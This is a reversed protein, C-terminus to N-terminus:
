FVLGTERAGKAIAGVQGHYKYGGKDFVAKRIGLAKAKEAAKQGIKEALQIKTLGKKDKIEFDSVSVLTKGQTDDILQVYLHKNSRFVCIRPREGNGNIKGRVRYHRKIRNLQKKLM